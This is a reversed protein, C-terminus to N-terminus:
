KVQWGEIRAGNTYFLALAVGDGGASRSNILIRNPYKPDYDRVTYIFTEDTVKLIGAQTQTGARFTTRRTGNSLKIRSGPAPMTSPAPTPSAVYNIVRVGNISEGWGLYKPSSAAEYAELSRYIAGDSWVTGNALRVNIHGLNVKAVTYSYFLPVDIGLPINRDQHKQTNNWAQTANAYKPGIGFGLRTNRLCWLHRSGGLAKNFSKTQKWM